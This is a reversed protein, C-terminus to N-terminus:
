QSFAQSNPRYRHILGLNQEAREVLDDYTLLTLGAYYSNELRVRDRLADQEPNTGTYRGIVLFGRPRNMAIPGLGKRADYGRRLQPEQRAIDCYDIIQGM